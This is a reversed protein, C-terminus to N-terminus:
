KGEGDLLGLLARCFNGDNVALAAATSKKGVAHGVDGGSFPLERIDCGYFDAKDRLRKKTNDSADQSLLLLPAGAAAASCASDAGVALKGARAALGLMLLIRDAM